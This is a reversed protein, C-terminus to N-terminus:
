SGWSSREADVHAAPDIGEWLERGLGKLEMISLQLGEEIATELLHVVEQAISRHERRARRRLAEYLDDPFEKVNLTAM